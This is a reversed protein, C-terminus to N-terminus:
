TVLGYRTTQWAGGPAIVRQDYECQPCAVFVPFGLGDPMKVNAQTREQKTSVSRVPGSLGDRQADTKKDSGGHIASVSLLTALLLGPLTSRYRAMAKLSRIAEVM